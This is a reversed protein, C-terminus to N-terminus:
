FAVLSSRNLIECLCVTAFIGPLSPYNSPCSRGLYVPTHSVEQGEPPERCLEEEEKHLEEVLKEVERALVESVADDVQSFFYVGPQVFAKCRQDIRAPLDTRTSKRFTHDSSVSSLSFLCSCYM